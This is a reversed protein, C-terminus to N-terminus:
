PVITNLSAESTENLSIENIEEQITVNIIGIIVAGFGSNCEVIDVAPRKIGDEGKMKETEQLTGLLPTHNRLWPGVM